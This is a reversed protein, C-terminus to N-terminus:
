STVEVDLATPAAVAADVSEGDLAL